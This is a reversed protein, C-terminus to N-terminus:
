YTTPDDDQELGARQRQQYWLYSCVTPVLTIVMALAFFLFFLPRESLFWPLAFIVLGGFFFLKGALRHTRNWVEPDSLTWPNKIGMFFNSKVKPLINGMVAFLVGCLSVVVTSVKIRGPHFSESLIIGMMGLIFLEMFLCFGDYAGQFKQYNRKRPDIKPLFLLMPGMVAGLAAIGWITGKGGYAVQGDFSWNTPIQDPLKPYFYAATLLCLAALLLVMWQTKSFKSM